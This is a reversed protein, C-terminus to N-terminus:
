SGGCRFKDLPGRQPWHFNLVSLEPDDKEVPKNIWAAGPISLRKSVKVSARISGQESITQPSTVQVLVDDCPRLNIGPNMGCLEVVVDAASPTQIISFTLRM